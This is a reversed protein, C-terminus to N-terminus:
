IKFRYTTLNKFDSTKYQKKDPLSPSIEVKVFICDIGDERDMASCPLDYCYACYTEDNYFSCGICSNKKLVPTCRYTQHDIMLDGFIPTNSKRFHKPIYEDEVIFMSGGEYTIIKEM